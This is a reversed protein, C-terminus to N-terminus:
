QECYNEPYNAPPIFNGLGSAHFKRTRGTLRIMKEFYWEQLEGQFEGQFEITKTDKKMQKTIERTNKATTKANVARLTVFVRRNQRLQRVVIGAIVMM